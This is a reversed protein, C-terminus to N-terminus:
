RDELGLPLTRRNGEVVADAVAAGRVGASRRHYAALAGGLSGERSPGRLRPLPSPLTQLDPDSFSRAPEPRALAARSTSSGCPLRMERVRRLPGAPGPDPRDSGADRRSAGSGRDGHPSETP